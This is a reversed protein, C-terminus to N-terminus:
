RFSYFKDVCFAPFGDAEVVSSSKRKINCRQNKTKVDNRGVHHGFNDSYKMYLFFIFLFCFLPFSAILLTICGFYAKM